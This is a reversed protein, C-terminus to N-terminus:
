VQATLFITTDTRFPSNERSSSLASPLTAFLRESSNGSLKSEHRPSLGVVLFKNMESNNTAYDM